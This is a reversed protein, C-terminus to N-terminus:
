GTLLASRRSVLVQGGNRGPQHRRGAPRALHLHRRRLDVSRLRVRRRHQVERFVRFDSPRLSRRRGLHGILFLLFTKLQRKSTKQKRKLM